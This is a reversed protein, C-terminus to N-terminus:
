EKILIIFIRIIGYSLKPVTDSINFHFRLASSAHTNFRASFSCCACLPEATAYDWTNLAKLSSLRVLPLGVFSMFFFDMLGDVGTRTLFLWLTLIAESSLERPAIRWHFSGRVTLGRNTVQSGVVRM